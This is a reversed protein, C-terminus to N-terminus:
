IYAGDNRKNNELIYRFIMKYATYYQKIGCKMLIM